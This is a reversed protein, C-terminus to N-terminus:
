YGLVSKPLRMLPDLTDPMFKRAFLYCTRKKGNLGCHLTSPNRPNALYPWTIASILKKTIESGNFSRPHDGLASFDTFTITRNAVWRGDKIHLLTQIYHEDPYCHHHWKDGRCYREFKKYIITDELILYAHERTSSFWQLGKRWEHQKIEPAMNPDYRGGCVKEKPHYYSAVYSYRTGMLYEWVTEFGQVPICSESLLIFRENAPDALAMALLRREADVMTPSGWSVKESRIQNNRFLHSASEPYVFGPSTHVYITFKGYHGKFFREWLPALPMNGRVLFMFAIKKQEIRSSIDEREKKFKGIVEILRKDEESLYLPKIMNYPPGIEKDKKTCPFRWTHMCGFEPKGNLMPQSYDNDPIGAALSRRRGANGDVREDIDTSLSGGHVLSNGSFGVLVVLLSLLFTGAVRELRIAMKKVYDAIGLSM